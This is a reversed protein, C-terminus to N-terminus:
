CLARHRNGKRSVRQKEFGTGTTGDKEEQEFNSEKRNIRLREWLVRGGVAYQWIGCASAATLLPLFVLLYRARAEFLMQYLVIGLFCLALIDYGRGGDEGKVCIGTIGLLCFIWALQCFTNYKGMNGGGPWFVGRLWGTLATNGATEEPFNGYIWVETRWGFAGDNFVMVLKKLWFSICGWVGRDRMRQGARELAAQNREKRSTQFEGTIAADESNYGGTTGENLGMYLYTQWSASVEPNCQLGMEGAMFDRGARGVCTLATVILIEALFFKWQKRFDGLFALFEIGMLAIMVVYVSPKMFGGAMGCVLAPLLYLFRFLDKRHQRYCLYFYVCMVPFVMGYTDTYPAIKWPSIGALALYLLFATIVATLNGTVKKVTLCCFYGGISFLVCNLRIWLMQGAHFDNAEVAKRCLRGLIYSIPINNPYISLYSYNGLEEGMAFKWAVSRVVMVDWPLEFAIEEALKFNVFCLAAFLLILVGNVATNGGRVFAHDPKELVPFYM